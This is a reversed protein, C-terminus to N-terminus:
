TKKKKKRNKMERARKIEKKREKKKSAKQKRNKGWLKGRVGKEEKKMKERFDGLEFASISCVCVCVCVCVGCVVCAVEIEIVCGIKSVVAVVRAQGDGAELEVAGRGQLGLNHQPAVRIAAGPGIVKAAVNQDVLILNVGRLAVLCVCAKGLVHGHCGRADDTDIEVACDRVVVVRRLLVLAAPGPADAVAPAHRKVRQSAHDVNGLHTQQTHRHANSIM